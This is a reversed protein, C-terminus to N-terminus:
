FVYNEEVYNDHVQFSSSRFVLLEAWVLILFFSATSMEKTVLYCNTPASFPASFPERFPQPRSHIYAQFYNNPNMLLRSQFVLKFIDELDRFM